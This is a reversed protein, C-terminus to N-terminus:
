KGLKSCYNGAAPPRALMSDHLRVDADTSFRDRIKRAPIGGHIEYPPIDRTVVSHAAVIAGRGIHVGSMIISGYGVWVDDGIITENLAPRGSFIMPTGPIDFRHDSGTIVVNPAFMTYSGIKVRPCIRCGDALFSYAGAQLDPSVRSRGSMYFTPHVAKLGYRLRLLAMKSVRVVGRVKAIGRLKDTLINIM